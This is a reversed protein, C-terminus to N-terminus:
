KRVEFNAYPKGDPDAVAGNRDTTSLDYGRAGAANRRGPFAYIYNKEWPDQPIKDLYPGRWGQSDRPKVVLDQLLRPYTGMDVEYADLAAGLAAIQTHAATQKARETNGTMKPLVIGALIALITLVLLLEVLTFAGATRGASRNANRISIRM